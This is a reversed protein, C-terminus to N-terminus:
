ALDVAGAAIYAQRVAAETATVTFEDECRRRAQEGHQARLEPHQQLDLLANTIAAHDENDVLFGTPGMVEHTGGVATAVVPIGTAMAEAVVNPFGETRSPSVYVDLSRHFDRPERYPGVLKTTEGVGNSAVMDVLEENNEDIGPGALLLTGTGGADIFDAWARLLVDIGKDFTWRTLCGVVFGDRQELPRPELFKPPIANLTVILHPARFGAEVHRDMTTESCFVLAHASRPALLRGLRVIARTRRKLGPSFPETRRVGWVHRAKGFPRLAAGMLFGHYMWSHVVSGRRAARASRLFRLVGDQRLSIVKVGGAEMEKRLLDDAALCLVTVDDGREAQAGALTALQLEAGGPRFVPIMHTLTASM